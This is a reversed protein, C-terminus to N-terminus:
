IAGNAGGQRSVDPMLLARVHYETGLLLCTRAAPLATPVRALSEGGLRHAMLSLWLRAAFPKVECAIPQECVCVAATDYAREATETISERFRSCLRMSIYYVQKPQLSYREIQLWDPTKEGTLREEGAVNELGIRTSGDM